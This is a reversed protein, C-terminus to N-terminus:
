LAAKSMLGRLSIPRSYHYKTDGYPNSEHDAENQSEHNSISNGILFM